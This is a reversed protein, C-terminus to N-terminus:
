PKSIKEESPFDISIRAKKGFTKKTASQSRQIIDPAL